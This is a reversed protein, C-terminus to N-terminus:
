RIGLLARELLFQKNMGKRGILGHIDHGSIHNIDAMIIHDNQPLFRFRNRLYEMECDSVKHFIIQKNNSELKEQHNTIILIRENKPVTIVGKRKIKNKNIEFRVLMKSLANLLLNNEIDSDKPFIIIFDFRLDLKYKKCIVSIIKKNNRISTYISVFENITLM